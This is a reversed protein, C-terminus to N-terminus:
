LITWKRIVNLAWFLVQPYSAAPKFRQPRLGCGGSAEKKPYQPSM